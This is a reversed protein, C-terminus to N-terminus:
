RERRQPRRALQRQPGGVPVVHIRCGGAKAVVRRRDAYLATAGSLDAFLVSIEDRSIPLPLRFAPGLNEIAGAEGYNSVLIGVNPSLHDAPLSDRIGAVTKVLEDWGFEERLDSSKSLAFDRLPGSSALPVWGAFFYGGCFVLGAFFVAEVGYRVYASRATLWRVAVVAGM